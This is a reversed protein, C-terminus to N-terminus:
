GRVAVIITDIMKSVREWVIEFVTAPIAHQLRSKL